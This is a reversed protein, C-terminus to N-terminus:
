QDPTRMTNMTVTYPKSRYTYSVTVSAQRVNLNKNNVTYGTTKISTAIQGKVVQNNNMPDKYLTMDRASTYLVTPTNPDSWYTPVDTRLINSNPDAGNLLPNKPPNASPDFPGKTLILDIQNQALTQAVTYLRSVSAFTNLQNLGFIIVTAVIGLIMTGVAVEVLTFGAKATQPWVRPNLFRPSRWPFVLTLPLPITWSQPLLYAM